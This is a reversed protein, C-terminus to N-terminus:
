SSKLCYEYIKGSAFTTSDPLFRIALVASTRLTSSNNVGTLTGTYFQTSPNLYTYSGQFFKYSTTSSPNILIFEGSITEGGTNGNGVGNQAFGIGSGGTGSITTPASSSIDIRNETTLSTYNTGTVYTSGDTSFRVEVGSGDTTPRIHDIIYKYASCSSSLATFDLSSSNAATGVAILTWSGSSSLNTLQSGDVAPLKASGDLAVLDGASTGIATTAASTAGLATLQAGANAASMLAVGAPTITFSSDPVTITRKTSTTIGSLEFALQKSTDSNDELLFNSDKITLANTNDFTKNTVTQTASILEVTGAADPFAIARNATPTTITLTTAFSGDADLIIENSNANLSLSNLTVNNGTGLSLNTRATAFNALESLNNAKLMDGAGSGSPGAPGTAGPGGAVMINWDTHAGSGNFSIVNVQLSTGSYSLVNGFMNNNTNAGSTITVYGSFSKGSQTTFTQSGSGITISTSSTGSLAAVSNAAAAASTSASSSFGSSATASAASAIASTNAAAASAAATNLYSSFDVLAEWKGAGLDTAFIGSTHAILCRYLVANEWVADNALYPTGTLWDGVPNIGIQLDAQLQDPGVSNNALQGDDRQILALNNLIQNTTGQLANYEDDLWPGPQQLDPNNTTFDTFNHQRTYPTPQAAHAFPVFWMLWLALWLGIKEPAFGKQRIKPLEM